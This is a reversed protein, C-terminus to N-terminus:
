LRIIILPLFTLTTPCTQIHFELRTHEYNVTTLFISAKTLRLAFMKMENWKLAEFKILSVCTERIVTHRVFYVRFYLRRYHEKIQMILQATDFKLCLQNNNKGILFLLGGGYLILSLANATPVIRTETSFPFAILKSLFHALCKAPCGLMVASTQLM